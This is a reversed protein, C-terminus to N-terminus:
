SFGKVSSFNSSRLKMKCVVIQWLVVRWIKVCLSPLCEILNAGHPSQGELDESRRQSNEVPIIHPHGKENKGCTRICRKGWVCMHVTRPYVILFLPTQIWIFSSFWKETHVRMLSDGERLPCLAESHWAVTDTQRQANRQRWVKDLFRNINEYNFFILGM